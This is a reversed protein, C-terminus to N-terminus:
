NLGTRILVMVDRPKMLIAVNARTALM